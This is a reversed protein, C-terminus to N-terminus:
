RAAAFPEAPFALDMMLLRLDDRDRLPHLADQTRYAAPNRYGMAVAQHLQAVATEAESASEAASVGSGTRGALGALAAHSCGSLFWGEAYRSPLADFLAMARRADAAAGVPDSLARRALSRHLYNEAQVNRLDLIEPHERIAAEIAAIAQDDLRRAEAPRGLRRLAFALNSGGTNAVAFRYDPVKPNEDPLKQSSALATRLETAPV